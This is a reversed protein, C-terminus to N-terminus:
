YKKLVQLYQTHIINASLGQNQEVTKLNKHVFSENIQDIKMFKPLKWSNTCNEHIQAIKM